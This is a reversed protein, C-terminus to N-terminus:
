NAIMLDGVVVFDDESLLNGGRVETYAISSYLIYFSNRSDYGFCNILTAKGSHTANTENFTYCAVNTGSFDYKNNFVQCDICVTRCGNVDAIMPGDGHRGTTNVRLINVGDHATSLNMIYRNTNFMHHYYGAEEAQCNVEVYVTNLIQSESLNTAHYNYCDAQPYACVCDILYVINFNSAPVGDASFNHQFTCNKGIFENIREDNDDLTARGSLYFGSIINLNEFYLMASDDNRMSFRFGYTSVLPHVTGIDKKPHVYMKKNTGDWYYTGATSSVESISSVYTYPLYAGMSDLNDDSLDIVACGGKLNAINYSSLDSVYVNDYGNVLSFNPTEVGNIIKASTKARIVLNHKVAYENGYIDDFFLEADDNIITILMDSNVGAILAKKLTRFPASESTGVNSDSGNQTDVFYETFAINKSSLVDEVSYENDKQYIAYPLTPFDDINIKTQSYIDATKLQEIEDRLADIKDQLSKEVGQLEDKTAAESNSDAIIENIDALDKELKEVSSRLSDSDNKLLTDATKMDDLISNTKEVSLELTDVRTALSAITTNIENKFSTWDSITVFIDEAKAGDTQNSLAKELTAIKAKLESDQAKLMEIDTKRDSIEKELSVSFAGISTRAIELESELNQVRETLTAINNNLTNDTIEMDDLTANILALQQEISLISNDVENQMACGALGCVIFLCVAIALIIEVTKKM